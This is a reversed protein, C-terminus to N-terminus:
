FRSHLLLAGGFANAQLAVGINLCRNSITNQKRDSEELEKDKSRYLAYIVTKVGDALSAFFDSKTPLRKEDVSIGPQPQSSTSEFAQRLSDFQTTLKIVHTQSEGVISLSRDLKDSIENIRSLEDLFESKSVRVDHVTTRLLEIQTSINNVDRQQSFNQYYSYVIALVALIISVITGAFSVYGVIGESAGYRFVKEIFVYEGIIIGLIILLWERTSLTRHNENSM